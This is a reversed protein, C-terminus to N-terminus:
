LSDLVYIDPEPLSGVNRLIISLNLIASSLFVDLTLKQGVCMHPALFPPLSLPLSLSCPSIFVSTDSCTERLLYLWSSALNVILWHFM